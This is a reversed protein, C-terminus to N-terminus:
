KNVWLWSFWGGKDGSTLFWPNIGHGITYAHTAHVVGCQELPRSDVNLYYDHGSIIGGKRVKSSWEIIDRMVWDFQHFGDIYVFDLEGDDFISVAELSAMRWFDVDYPALTKKAIAYTQEFDLQTGRIESYALWPDICHLKLGPIRACLVQAFRGHQVGIEAGVKYGAKNFIDGLINRYARHRPSQYPLPGNLSTIGLEKMILRDIDNM